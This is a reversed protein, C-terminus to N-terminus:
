GRRAREFSSATCRTRLVRGAAVQVGPRQELKALAARKPDEMDSLRINPVSTRLM